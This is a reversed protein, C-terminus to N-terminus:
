LSRWWWQDILSIAINRWRGIRKRWGRLAFWWRHPHTGMGTCWDQAISGEARRPTPHNVCVCVLGDGRGAAFTGKL